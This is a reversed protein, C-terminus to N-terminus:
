RDWSELVILHCKFLVKSQSFPIVQTIGLSSLSSTVLSKDRHETKRKPKLNKPVWLTISFASKIKKEIRRRDERSMASVQRASNACGAAGAARAALRGAALSSCCHGGVVM